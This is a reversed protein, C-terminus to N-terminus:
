RDTSLKMESDHGFNADVPHVTNPDNHFAMWYADYSGFLNTLEAQVDRCDGAILTGSNTAAQNCATMESHLEIVRPDSKLNQKDISNSDALASCGIIAITAAIVSTRAKM